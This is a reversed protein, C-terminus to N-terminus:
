ELPVGTIGLINHLHCLVNVKISGEDASVKRWADEINLKIISESM